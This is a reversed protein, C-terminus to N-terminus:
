DDGVSSINSAFSAFQFQRRSGWHIGVQNEKIVEGLLSFCEENKKMGPWKYEELLMRMFFTGIYKCLRPVQSSLEMLGIM